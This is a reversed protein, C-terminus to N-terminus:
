LIIFNPSWKIDMPPCKHEPRFNNVHLRATEACRPVVRFFEACRPVFNPVVRCLEACSPVFSPVVRFFEACSPVFSPVVRFSEADSPM